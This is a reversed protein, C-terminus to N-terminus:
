PAPTRFFPSLAFKKQAGGGGWTGWERAIGWMHDVWLRAWLTVVFGCAKHASGMESLAGKLVNVDCLDLRGEKWVLDRTVAFKEGWLRWCATWTMIVGGGGVQVPVQLVNDGELFDAICDWGQGKVWAATTTQELRLAKKGEKEQECDAATATRSEVRIDDWFWQLWVLARGKTWGHHHVLAKVLGSGACHVLRHVGHLGFDPPRQFPLVAPLTMGGWYWVKLLISNGQGFAGLCHLRNGGCLWCVHALPDNCKFDRCGSLAVQAKTHAIMVCVVPTAFGGENLVEMANVALVDLDLKKQQALDSLIQTTESGQLLM